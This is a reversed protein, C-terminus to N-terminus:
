HIPGACDVEQTCTRGPPIQTVSTKGVVNGRRSESSFAVFYTLRNKQYNMVHVAFPASEAKADQHQQEEMWHFTSLSVRITKFETNINTRLPRRLFMQAVGTFRKTRSEKSRGHTSLTMSQPSTVSECCVDDIRRQTTIAPSRM